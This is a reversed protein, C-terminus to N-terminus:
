RVTNKGPGAAAADICTRNASVPLQNKSLEFKKEGTDAVFLRGDTSVVYLLEVYQPQLSGVGGPTGSVLVKRYLLDKAAVGKPLEIDLAKFPTKETREYVVGDCGVFWMKDESAILSSGEAHSCLWMQVVAFILVSHAKV